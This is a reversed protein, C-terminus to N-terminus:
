QGMLQSTFLDPLISKLKQYYETGEKVINEDFREELLETYWEVKPLVEFEFFTPAKLLLNKYNVTAQEIYHLFEVVTEECQIVVYKNSSKNLSLNDPKTDYFPNVSGKLDVEHSRSKYENTLLKINEVVDNTAKFARNELDNIVLRTLRGAGNVFDQNENTLYSNAETLSSHSNYNILKGVRYKDSNAHVASTKVHTGGFWISAPMGQMKKATNLEIKTNITKMLEVFITSVGQALLENKILTAPYGKTLIQFTSFIFSASNVEYHSKVEKPILLESEGLSEHRNLYDLFAKGQPTNTSISDTPTFVKARSKWYDSQVHTVRHTNQMKKYNKLKTKQADTPQMTMWCNLWYFILAQSLLTPKVEKKGEIFLLLEYIFERSILKSKKAYPPGNLYNPVKNNKYVYEHLEDVRDSKILEQTLLSKLLLCCYNNGCFAITLIEKALNQTQSQGTKYSNMGKQWSHTTFKSNKLLEILSTVAEDLYLYLLSISYSFSHMLLKASAVQLYFNEMQNKEFESRLWRIEQFWLTLPQQTPKYPILKTKTLISSLVAEEQLTLGTAVEIANSLYQKFTHAYSNTLGREILESEYNKIIQYQDNVDFNYNNIYELFRKFSQKTNSSQLSAGYDEPNLEIDISYNVLTSFLLKGTENKTRCKIVITDATKGFAINFTQFRDNMKAPLQTKPKSKLNFAKQIESIQSNESTSSEAKKSNM